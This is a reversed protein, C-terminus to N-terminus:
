LDPKISCFSYSRSSFAPSLSLIAPSSLIILWIIFRILISPLFLLTHQIIFYLSEMIASKDSIMLLIIFIAYFDKNPLAYALLSYFRFISSVLLIQVRFYFFLSLDMLFDASIYWLLFMDYFHSYLQLVPEALLVSLDDIFEIFRDFELFILQLFDFFFPMLPKLIFGLFVLSILSLFFDSNFLEPIRSEWLLLYFRMAVVIDYRFIVSDFCFVVM